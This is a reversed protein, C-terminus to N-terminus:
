DNEEDGLEVILNGEHRTDVIAVDMNLLRESLIDEDFHNDNISVIEEFNRVITVPRNAVELFDKLKIM